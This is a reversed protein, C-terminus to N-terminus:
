GRWVYIRGYIDGEVRSELLFRLTAPFLSFSAHVFRPDAIDDAESLTSRAGAIQLRCLRGQMKNGHYSISGLDHREVRAMLSRDPWILLIIEWRYLQGQAERM